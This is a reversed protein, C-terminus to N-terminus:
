ALVMRHSMGVSGCDTQFHYRGATTLELPQFIHKGSTKPEGALSETARHSTSHTATTPATSPPPADPFYSKLPFPRSHLRQRRTQYISLPRETFTWLNPDRPLQPCISLQFATDHPAAKDITYTPEETMARGAVREGLTLIHMCM